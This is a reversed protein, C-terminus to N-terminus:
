YVGGVEVPRAHGNAGDDIEKEEEPGDDVFPTPAPPQEQEDGYVQRATIAADGESDDKKLRNIAILTQGTLLGGTCLLRTRRSVKMNAPLLDDVELVADRFTNEDLWEDPIFPRMGAERIKENAKKGAKIGAHAVMIAIEERSEGAVQYKDRWDKEKPLKIEPPPNPPPRGVAGAAPEAPKQSKEPAGKATESSQSSQSAAVKADGAASPQSKDPATAPPVTSADPLQEPPRGQPKKMGDWQTLIELEEPTAEKGARIKRRIRTAKNSLAKRERKTTAM